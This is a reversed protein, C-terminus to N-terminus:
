LRQSQKAISFAAIDFGPIKNCAMDCLIKGIASSFKFGHGSCPSAIIINNNAPHYDIIFDETPTNTYMCVASHSFSVKVDLYEEIINSMNKIEDDAVTRDITDADTIKGKHHVAVKLKNEVSPFGYFVKDKEYEWLYIPMHAPSFNERHATEYDFWFLVQRAVSLPLQVDTFLKNMWAGASVILKGAVYEGRNTSIRLGSGENKIAIVKENFCFEVHQKQALLIHARICEEPFLLGANREYLGTTEKGPKFAPFKKKIADSELVEYWINYAAASREAGAFVKSTADGLMLGGTKLFLQKGYENELQQWLAYAQQVLPVYLPSEFYAERIIRSEGHSSGMSHPPQFKDIVLVKKGTASLHYAAASGMAGAGIVVIDYSSKM